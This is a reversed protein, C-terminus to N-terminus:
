SGVAQEISRRFFEGFDEAVRELTGMGQQGARWVVVPCERNADRTSTDLAFLSGDGVAGVVVLAPPLGTNRETLTAWIGNPVSSNVFDDGIIGFFEEGAIDGCGLELLFRRYTPPFDLGLAQEARAVLNPSKAGEFDAEESYEDVLDFGSDLDQMSM